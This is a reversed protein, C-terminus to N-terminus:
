VKHFDLQWIIVKGDMFDLISTQLFNVVEVLKQRSGPIVAVFSHDLGIDLHMDVKRINM